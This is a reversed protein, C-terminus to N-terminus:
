DDSFRPDFWESQEILAERRIVVAPMALFNDM